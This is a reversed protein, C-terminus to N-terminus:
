HMKPEPCKRKLADYLNRIAKPYHERKDLLDKAQVLYKWSNNYDYREFCIASLYYNVTPDTKDLAYYKLIINYAEKTRGLQLWTNALQMIGARFKPFKEVIKELEERKKIISNRTEDVPMFIAKIGEADVNNELYDITITDKSTAHDPIIDKNEELLKKGEEIRGVFLYNFALLERLLYDDPLYLKAKEYLEIAKDFKEQGWYVSAQNIIALPIVEKINREQLKRTEIGLYVDSPYNVGRATTEINTIEGNKDKYRIFIHGPPTIIELDLDLRQALCLYLTSVGLCVGRRSDMVSPLFTFTDIEKAHISHPPFRFRMKYFIFDNIEYVKDLPTPNDPLRALIQLAMLDLCAEYYRIKYRSEDSNSLESLFLGRALDVDEINMTLYEEETWVDHGKLKRNSLHKGLGEIFTLHEDDLNDPPIAPQKNVLSTMLQIDLTPLLISKEIDEQALIQWAKKLALKGEKTEPYLDYFAFHQPASKPDLSKFLTSISPSFSELGPCNQLSSLILFGSFLLILHFIRRKM